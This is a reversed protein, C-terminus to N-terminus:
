VKNLIVSNYFDRIKAAISLLLCLLFSGLIKLITHKNHAYIKMQFMHTYISSLSLEGHITQRFILSRSAM